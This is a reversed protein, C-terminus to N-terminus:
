TAASTWALEAAEARSPYSSQAGPRTTTFASIRSAVAAAETLPLGRALAAAVSGAYADGAGTTDVPTVAVAPIPTVTPGAPDLVVSGRAGLTVIAQGIGRDALARARDAWGPDASGADEGLLLALEHENVLLLDTAALLEAPVEAYPSLNLLVQAGAARGHRAAALM